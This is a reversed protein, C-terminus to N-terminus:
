QKGSLIVREMIKKERRWFCVWVCNGMFLFDKKNSCIVNYCKPHSHSPSPPQTHTRDTDFVVVQHVRNYIYTYTSHALVSSRHCVASLCRFMQHKFNCCRNYLIEMLKAQDKNIIFALVTAPAAALALCAGVVLTRCDLHFSRALWNLHCHCSLSNWKRRTNRTCNWISIYINTKCRCCYYLWRLLLPPSSSSLSPHVKEKRKWKTTVKRPAGAM